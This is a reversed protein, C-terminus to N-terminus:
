FLKVEIGTKELIEEYSSDRYFRDFCLYYEIVDDYKIMRYCAIVDGDDGFVPGAVVEIKNKDKAMERTKGELTKWAGRNMTPPQPVMNCMNFTERRLDEEYNKDENPCMHGRDYTVRGNTDKHWRTGNYKNPLSNGCKKFPNTSRPKNPAEVEEKTLTWCVAFPIGNDPNLYSVYANHVHLDYKKGINIYVEAFSGTCLLILSMIFVTLRKM